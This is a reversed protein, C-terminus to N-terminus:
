PPAVPVRAVRQRLVLLAWQLLLQVTVAASLNRLSQIPLAMAPLMLLVQRKLPVMTTTLLMLRLLRLLRM